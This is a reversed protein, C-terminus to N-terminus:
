EEVEVRMLKPRVTVVNNDDWASSMAIIRYWGSNDELDETEESFYFTDGLALGSDLNNAEGWKIPIGVLEIEPTEVGFARSSLETQAAETVAEQSKLDSRTIYQRWYCYEKAFDNNEATGLEATQEGEEVNGVQGNGAVLIHSAYDNTEEVSFNYAWLRYVGDAPFRIIINKKTGRPKLIDIRQRTYDEPDPRIVVDFKGTGTTNDMADCLAKSITEFSDYTRSKAPLTNVTGYSWNVTEGAASAHALFQDILDQVYLHGPRQNFRVYPDTPNSSDCVIDGSLRAFWEYFTLELSQTAGVGSRAPRAALWGAFRPFGDIELVIRTKGVKLYDTAPGEVKSEVFNQFQVWNISFTFTDATPSSAESKLTEELRRNKAYKNIDGLLIDGFYLLLRIETM